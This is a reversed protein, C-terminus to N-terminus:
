TDMMTPPEVREGSMPDLHWAIGTWGECECRRHRCSSLKTAGHMLATHGCGDCEADLDLRPPATRPDYRLEMRDFGGVLSVHSGREGRTHAMGSDESVSLVIVETSIGGRERLWVQGPFVDRPNRESM